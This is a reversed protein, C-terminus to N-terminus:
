ARWLRLYLLLRLYIFFNFRCTSLPLTSPPTVSSTLNKDGFLTQVVEKWRSWTLVFRTCRAETPPPLLHIISTM